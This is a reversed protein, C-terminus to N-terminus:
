LVIQRMDCRCRLCKSAYVPNGWRDFEVLTKSDEDPKHFGLWCLLEDLFKM